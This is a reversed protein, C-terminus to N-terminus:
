AESKRQKIYPDMVKIFFLYSMILVLSLNVTEKFFIDVKLGSLIYLAKISQSGRLPTVILVIYICKYLLPILIDVVLSKIFTAIVFGLTFGTLSGVINNDVIFHMLEKYQTDFPAM